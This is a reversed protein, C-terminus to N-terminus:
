LKFRVLCRTFHLVVWIATLILVHLPWPTEAAYHKRYFIEMARWFEVRARPSQRSAARKVHLVTVQPTYLIRWGAQKIRFAWDLDEGYMFFSEDLLGVQVIAERRVLMFAGVVSDVEAEEDPDLYTLNYRGFRRSQPFLRSLGVMRYFSVEPSPFSRRCALDLSGDPRVLKPGLAGLEPRAEMLAVVQQLADSPLETDPNLLLAYRPATAGDDGFGLARLGQNNATPYGVNETNAILMVQPFERTVMATSEDSSANDVVCVRFMVGVSAFVTELCRRLLECTNYNVIVIGLDM